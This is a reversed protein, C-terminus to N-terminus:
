TGPEEQDIAPPTAPPLRVEAVAGGEPHNRVEITGGHDQIIGYCVSLGLGTGEGAEKTSYFPDFLKDVTDDPIGPGDDRVAFGPGGREESLLTLRVTGGDGTAHAANLLLNVLVQQLQSSDAAVTPIDLPPALELSVGRQALVPLMLESAAAVVDALQCPLPEGSSPRSFALLRGVIGAARECESRITTLFKEARPSDPGAEELLQTYTSVNGLPNNLEHALGAALTGLSSLRDSRRVQERMSVLRSMDRVSVIGGDGLPACELLVPREEPGIRTEELHPEGRRARLLLCDERCYRSDVLDGCPSGQLSAEGAVETLGVAAPNATTVKRDPDVVLIALPLNELIGATRARAAEVESTRAEVRAELDRQNAEVESRYDGLSAAMADFTRGLVGLEDNSDLEVRRDFDGTRIANSAEVLHELPRTVFLKAALHVGFGALLIVDLLTLFLIGAARDIADALRRRRLELEVSGLRFSRSTVDERLRLLAEGPQAPQIPRATAVAIGDRDLVRLHVIDRDERALKRVFLRLSDLRGTVLGERANAVVGGLVVQARGKLQRELLQERTQIVYFGAASLCVLLIASVPLMVKSQLTLRPEDVMEM